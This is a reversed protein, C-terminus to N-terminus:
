CSHSPGEPRPHSGESFTARMELPLREAMEILVERHEAFLAAFQM